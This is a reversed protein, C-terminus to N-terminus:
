AAVEMADEALVQDIIDRGYADAQRQQMQRMAAADVGPLSLLAQAARYRVWWVEDALMPELLHGDAAEGIRGLATAAHMRVHWRSAGLLNAVRERDQKDKVLQLCVSTVHDDVPHDLLERIVRAARKADIDALFRVLKAKTGDNARLVVEGLERAASGDENNSLIRAVSGPVWDERTLIMPVFMAMGRSPDVNGLAHAACLSVIPSSDRLFGALDDFTGPDRLYGLAVIAMARHHPRGRLMRRSAQALGVRQGLPVLRRSDAGPLSEHIANWGEIFGPAEGRRLRRVQVDNGALVQQMAQSWHMRAREDRRERMQSYMRLLVIAALLVLALLVTLVAVWYAVDLLAADNGLGNM